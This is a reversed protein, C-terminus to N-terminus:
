FIFAGGAASSKDSRDDRPTNVDVDDFSGTRGRQAPRAAFDRTSPQSQMPEGSPTRIHIPPSTMPSSSSETGGALQWDEETDSYDPPSTNYEPLNHTNSDGKVLGLREEETENDTARSKRAGRSTPRPTSSGDDDNNRHRHFVDATQQGQDDCGRTRRGRM